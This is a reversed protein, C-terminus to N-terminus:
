ASERTYQEMLPQHKGVNTKYSKIEMGRLLYPKKEMVNLKILEYMLNQIFITDNNSIDVYTGHFLRNRIIRYFRVMKKKPIKDSKIVTKEFIEWRKKFPIYSTYNPTYDLIQNMIGEIICIALIQQTYNRNYTFNFRYENLFFSFEEITNVNGESIIADIKKRREKRLNLLSHQGIICDILSDKTWKSVHYEGKLDDMEIQEKNLNAREDNTLELLITKIHHKKLKMSDAEKLKPNLSRTFIILELFKIL